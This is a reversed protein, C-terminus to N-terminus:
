CVWAARSVLDMIATYLSTNASLLTTLGRRAVKPQNAQLTTLNLLAGLNALLLELM